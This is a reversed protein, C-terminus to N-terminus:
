EAGGWVIVMVVPGTPLAKWLAASFYRLIRARLPTFNFM